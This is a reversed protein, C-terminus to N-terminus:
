SQEAMQEPHGKHMLSGVKHSCSEYSGRLVVHLPHFHFGTPENLSCVPLCGLSPACSREWDDISQRQPWTIFFAQLSIIGVLHLSGTNILSQIIERLHPRPPAPPERVPENDKYMIIFLSVECLKWLPRVLIFSVWSIM